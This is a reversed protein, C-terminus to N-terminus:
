LRSAALAAGQLGAQPNVVVKVPVTALLESMRGKDTFARMFEGGTLKDIIKAAIGGAVYVGGTAMATLALNGAQAGYIRVFLDLARGALADKKALAFESVAAAPDGSRMALALGASARLGATNCLFGYINELGPGSLVRECSVRGYRERLYQLLAIQEDDTPAFDVHGGESAVAEYHGDQWCLLGIGLGTGAGIIVRPGHELPRGQQLAVFDDEALAEIGYGIARFDNILRVKSLSLERALENADIRWPLNTVKAFQGGDRETVPGAIGFCASDLPLASRDKAQRLFERVMSRLDSFARSDFRHELVVQCAGAQCHAIELWTKTGGIDGALVKM